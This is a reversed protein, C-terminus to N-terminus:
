ERLMIVIGIFLMVSGVAVCAPYLGGLGYVGVGFLITGALMILDHLDIEKIFSM